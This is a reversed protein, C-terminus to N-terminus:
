KELKREVCSIKVDYGGRLFINEIEDSLQSKHVKCYQEVEDDWVKVNYRISYDFKGEGKSEKIYVSVVKYIDSTDAINDVCWETVIYDGYMAIFNRWMSHNKDIYNYGIRTDFNGNDAVIRIVSGGKDEFNEFFDKVTM